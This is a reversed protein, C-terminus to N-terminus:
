FLSIDKIYILLSEFDPFKSLFQITVNDPRKGDNNNGSLDKWNQVNEDHIGIGNNDIGDYWLTLGDKIYEFNSSLVKDENNDSSTEKGNIAIIKLEDNIQFQYSYRKLKTFISTNDGVIIKDLTATKGSELSGEVRTYYSSM